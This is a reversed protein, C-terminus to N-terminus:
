LQTFAIQFQLHAEAWPYHYTAAVPKKGKGSPPPCTAYQGLINDITTSPFNASTSDFALDKYASNDFVTDVYATWVNGERKIYIDPLSAGDKIYGHANMMLNLYTNNAPCGWTHSFFQLLMHVPLIDGDAMAMLDTKTNGCGCTTFRLIIHPYETTPQDYYNLFNAVCDPWDGTTKPFGCLGSNLNDSSGSITNPDLYFRLSPTFLQLELYSYSGSTGTASCPTDNTGLGNNINVQDHGGVFERLGNLNAGTVTAKWRIPKGAGAQSEPLALFALIVASVVFFGVAKLTRHKTM